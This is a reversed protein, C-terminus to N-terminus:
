QIILVKTESAKESVFLAQAKTESPIAFSYIQQSAGKGTGLEITANLESVESVISITSNLGPQVTFSSSGSGGATSISAERELLNDIRLWREDEDFYVFVSLMEFDKDQTKAYSFFSWAFSEWQESVNVQAFIASNVAVPAEKEFNDKLVNLKSTRQSSQKSQESPLSAQLSFLVVLLIMATFIYFQSKKHM